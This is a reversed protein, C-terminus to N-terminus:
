SSINRHENSYRNSKVENYISICPNVTDGYINIDIDFCCDVLDHEEMYKECLSIIMDEFDDKSM